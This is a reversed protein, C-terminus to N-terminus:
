HISNQELWAPNQDPNLKVLLIEIAKVLKPTTPFGMRM